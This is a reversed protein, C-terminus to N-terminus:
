GKQNFRMINNLKYVDTVNERKIANNCKESVKFNSIEVKKEPRKSIEEWNNNLGM